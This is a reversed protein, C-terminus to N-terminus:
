GLNRSILEPPSVGGPGFVTADVQGSWGGQVSAQWRSGCCIVMNLRIFM